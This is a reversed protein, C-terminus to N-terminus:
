EQKYPLMLETVFVGPENERNLYGGHKKVIKDIRYLGFGHGEGKMTIYRRLRVKSATANGVSIYFQQKFMGIYVRIFREKKNKIKECAEIANDMLNGFIVCFETDTVPIDRPINATVDLMIDKSKALSLKSNIIADAMINENKVVQDVQSLDADMEGLYVKCKEIDGHELHTKLVQMHNRLDHRWGRMEWYTTKIEEYWRAFTEDRYNELRREVIHPVIIGVALGYLAILVVFVTLIEWIM